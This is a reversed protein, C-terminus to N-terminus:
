GVAPARQAMTEYSTCPAMAVVQAGTNPDTTLLPRYYTVPVRQSQTQFNPVYSLTSPLTSPLTAAAIGTPMPATYGAGAPGIAPLQSSYYTGYNGAYGTAPYGAAGYAAAYGNGVPGNGVPVPAGVAYAPGAHTRGFLWDLLPGAQAARPSLGCSVLAIMAITSRSRKLSM